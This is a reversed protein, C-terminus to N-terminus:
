IYEHNWSSTQNVSWKDVLEPELRTQWESQLQVFIYDTTSSPPDLVPRIAIKGNYNRVCAPNLSPSALDGRVVSHRASTGVVLGGRDPWALM